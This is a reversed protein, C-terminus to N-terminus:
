TGIPAAAIRRDPLSTVITDVEYMDDCDILAASSSAFFFMLVSNISRRETLGHSTSVTQSDTRFVPRSMTASAAQAVQPTAASIAAVTAESTKLNRFAGITLTVSGSTGAGDFGM